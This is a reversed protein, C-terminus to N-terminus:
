LEQDLPDYYEEPSIDELNVGLKEAEDESLNGALAEKFDERQKLIKVCEKTDGFGHELMKNTLTDMGERTKIRCGKGMREGNETNYYSRIDYAMAGDNISLLRLAVFQNGTEEIVEDLEPNVDYKFESM